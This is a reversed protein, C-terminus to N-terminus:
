ELRSSKNNKAATRFLAAAREASLRAKQKALHKALPGTFFYDARM